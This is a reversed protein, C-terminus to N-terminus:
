VRAEKSRGEREGEGVGRSVEYRSQVGKPVSVEGCGGVASVKVFDDAFGRRAM